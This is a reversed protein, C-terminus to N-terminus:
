ASKYKRIKIEKYIACTECEGCVEDIYRKINKIYYLNKINLYMIVRGCHESVKHIYKIFEKSKQEVIIIRNRQDKMIHKLGQEDVAFLTYKLVRSDFENKTTRHRTEVYCRSLHDAM